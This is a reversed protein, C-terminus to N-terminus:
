IRESRELLIRPRELDPLGLFALFMYELYFQSLDHLYVYLSSDSDLEKYREEKMRELPHVVYHRVESLLWPGNNKVSLKEALASMRPTQSEDLLINHVSCRSENVRELARNIKQSSTRYEEDNRNADEGLVLRALMELGTYSTFIATDWAGIGGVINSHIYREVISIIESRRKEWQCWFQSFLAELFESTHVSSSSRFWNGRIRRVDFRGVKAWVPQDNTSYGIVVTPSRYVGAVFALFYNLGQLVDDLECVTYESDNSKTILGTWSVFDRTPQDDVTLAIRWEDSEFHIDREYIIRAPNEELRSPMNMTPLDVVCFEARTVRTLQSEQVVVGGEDLILEGRNHTGAQYVKANLQPQEANYLPRPLHPATKLQVTVSDCDRWAQDLLPHLGFLYKNSLTAVGSDDPEPEYPSANFYKLLFHGQDNIEPVVIIDLTNGSYELSAHVPVDLETKLIDDFFKSELRNLKM